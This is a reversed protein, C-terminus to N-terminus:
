LKLPFSEFSHGIHVLIKGINDTVNLGLIMSSVLVGTIKSNKRQSRVKGTLQNVNIWHSWQRQRFGSYAM